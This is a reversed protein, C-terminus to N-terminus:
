REPAGSSDLATLEALWRMGDIDRFLGLPEGESTVVVAERSHTAALLRLAVRVPTSEHVSVASSMAGSLTPPGSTPDFPSTRPSPPRMVNMDRVVGVLVRCKDVIAVSQHRGASLLIVADRLTCDVGLVLTGVSLLKAVATREGLPDAATESAPLTISCEVAARPEPTIAAAHVCSCCIGIPVSEGRLRCFVRYSDRHSGDPQLVELRLIPHRVRRGPSSGNVMGDTTAFAAGRRESEESALSAEDFRVRL